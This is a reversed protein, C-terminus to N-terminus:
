MKCSYVFHTYSPSIPTALCFPLLCFPVLGNKVHNVTIHWSTNTCAGGGLLWQFGSTVVPLWQYGSLVVPLWQCSSLVVSCQHGSTVVSFWEYGSAVVSLWQCGSAVVSFWQYGSAVISFWQSGSTVLYLPSGLFSALLVYAPEQQTSHDHESSTPVLIM